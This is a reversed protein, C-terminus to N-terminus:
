GRRLFPAFIIGTNFAWGWSPAKGDGGLPQRPALVQPEGSLVLGQTQLHKPQAKSTDFGLRAIVFFWRSLVLPVPCNELLHHPSSGQLQEEKGQEEASPRAPGKQVQGMQM